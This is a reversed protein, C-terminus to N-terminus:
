SGCRWRSLSSSFTFCCGCVNDVNAVACFVGVTHEAALVGLELAVLVHGVDVVRCSPRVAAAREDGGVGDQRRRVACVVRGWGVDDDALVGTEVILVFGVDFADVDLLDDEMGIVGLSEVPDVVMKRVVNHEELELGVTTM